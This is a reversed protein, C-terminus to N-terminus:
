PRSPRSQGAPRTRMCRHSSSAFMWPKAPVPIPEGRSTRLSASPRHSHSGRGCDGRWQRVPVAATRTRQHLGGRSWVATERYFGAPLVGVITAPVGAIRIVRGIVDRTGGFRSQWYGHGLLAVLPAGQRTDEIQVGRGLLPQVAYVELFDESAEGVILREPEGADVIRTRFGTLRGAGVHAFIHESGRWSRVDALSPAYRSSKGNSTERIRM